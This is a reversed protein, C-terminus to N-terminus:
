LSKKSHEMYALSSHEVGAHLIGVPLSFFFGRMGKTRYVMKVTSMFNRDPINTKTMRMHAVCVDLPSSCVTAIGYALWTAKLQIRLNKQQEVPYCKVLQAQILSALAEGAMGSLANPMAGRYFGRVGKKRLMQRMETSLTSQHASNKSLQLLTAIRTMPAWFATGVAYSCLGQMTQGTPNDGFYLLTLDRAGFYAFTGPLTLISGTLFGAYLGRFGGNAKIKQCAHWCHASQNMESLRLQNKWITDLPHAGFDAAVIVGAEKVREQCWSYWSLSTNKTNNEAHSRM